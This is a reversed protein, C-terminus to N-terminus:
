KEKERVNEQIWNWQLCINKEEKKKSKGTKNLRNIKRWNLCSEGKVRKWKVRRWIRKSKNSGKKEELGDQNKGEKEKM